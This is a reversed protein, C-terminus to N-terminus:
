TASERLAACVLRAQTFDHRAIADALPLVRAALAGGDWQLLQEIARAADPEPALLRADLDDLLAALAPRETLNAQEILALELALDKAADDLWALAADCDCADPASRLTAELDAAYQQLEDAGIIGASSKFSHLRNAAQSWDEATFCNRLQTLMADFEATFIASLSLYISVQGGLRRLAEPRNIKTGAHTAFPPPAGPVPAPARRLCHALLSAVVADIDIPKSLHANMGAALAAERDGQMANATMALIPLALEYPPARLRRTTEYGDLDPMQIDMLIADFGGAAALEIARQGGDAVVVTAGYMVLLDQAVQLNLANDDVVLVRLSALPRENMTRKSAGPGSTLTPPAAQAVAELLQAAMVPKSVFGHPRTSVQRMRDNLEARGYASMMIVVPQAPLAQQAIASTLEWGDMEPMRWDLLVVDYPAAALRALAAQGDGVCDARWGLVKVVHAIAMRAAADDDVILVDVIHGGADDQPGAIGTAPGSCVALALKFEFRSGHGPTSAVTLQGGMLHVLRQSIALGLGTGGFRRTTSAEAQHFQEFIIALKDEAIGIGTDSVCFMVTGDAGLGLAIRVEGAPTFKIANSALNILVQRLRMADGRLWRPLAPSLEVILELDKDGILAYLLDSLERALAAPEFPHQELTIADAEIRSLDLIDNLLTLLSKAALVVKDTYDRQVPSLETYSLLQLLGIVANMPTRIEHSM